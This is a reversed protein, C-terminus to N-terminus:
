CVLQTIIPSVIGGGSFVGCVATHYIGSSWSFCHLAKYCSSDMAFEFTQLFSGTCRMQLDVSCVFFGKFLWCMGRGNPWFHAGM